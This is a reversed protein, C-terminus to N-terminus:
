LSPCPLKEGHAFVPMKLCEVGSDSFSDFMRLPLHHAMQIMASITMGFLPPIARPIQQKPASASEEGIYRNPIVITLIVISLLKLITYEPFQGV